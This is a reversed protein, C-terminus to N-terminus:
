RHAPLAASGMLLAGLLLLLRCAGFKIVVAGCLITGLYCVGKYASLLSMTKGLHPQLSYQQILSEWFIHLLTFGCGFIVMLLAMQIHSTSLTLAYMAAGLVLFVFARMKKSFVTKLLRPLLFSALFSGAQFASIIVGWQSIDGGLRQKFLLPLGFNLIGGGVLLFGLM